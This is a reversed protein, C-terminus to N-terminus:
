IRLCNLALSTSRSCLVFTRWKEPPWTPITKQNSESLVFHFLFSSISVTGFCHPFLHEKDLYLGSGPTISDKTELDEAHQWYRWESKETAWPALFSMSLFCQGQVKVFFHFCKLKEFFVVTSIITKVTTQIQTYDSRSIIRLRQRGQIQTYVSRSIIRLRQTDGKYKLTFLGQYIDKVKTHRRQIQTSVSMSIIRLRQTNGKKSGIDEGVPGEAASMNLEGWGPLALRRSNWGAALLLGPVSDTSTLCSLAPTPSVTAAPVRLAACCTDDLVVCVMM